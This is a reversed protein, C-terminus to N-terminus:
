ATGPGVMQREPSYVFLEGSRARQSLSRQSSRQERLNSTEDKRQKRQETDANRQKAKDRWGTGRGIVWSQPRQVARSGVVKARGVREASHNVREALSLGRPAFRESSELDESM